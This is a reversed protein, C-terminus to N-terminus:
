GEVRMDLKDVLNKFTEYQRQIFEGAEEPSMLDVISGASTLTKRFREDAIAAEM